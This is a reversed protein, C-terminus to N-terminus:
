ESRLVIYPNDIDIIYSHRQNPSESLFFNPSDKTRANTSPKWLNGSPWTITSVTSYQETSYQVTCTTTSVATSSSLSLSLKIWRSSRHAACTVLGQVCGSCDGIIIELSLSVAQALEAEGLVIDDHPGHEVAAALLM